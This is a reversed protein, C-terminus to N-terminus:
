GLFRVRAFQNSQVRALLAYVPPVYGFFGGSGEADYPDHHYDAL